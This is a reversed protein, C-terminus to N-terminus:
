PLAFTLRADERSFFRRVEAGFAYSWMESM